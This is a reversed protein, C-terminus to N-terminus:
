VSGDNEVIDLIRLRCIKKVEDIGISIEQEKSNNFRRQLGEIISQVKNLRACIIFPFGFKERYNQNRINITEMQESSLDLLGASRQEESSERTLAGQAALRGALDPHLQLIVLKEAETLNDLYQVFAECLERVDKFPKKKQAQVAADTCLEIVNAFVADFQEKGLANVEPITLGAM